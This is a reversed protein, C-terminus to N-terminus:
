YNTNESIMAGAILNYKSREDANFHNPLDDCNNRHEERNYVQISDRQHESEAGSYEQFDPPPTTGRRHFDELFNLLSPTPSPARSQEPSHRPSHPPSHSERDQIEYILIIEDIIIIALDKMLVEINSNIDGFREKYKKLANEFGYMYILYEVNQPNNNLYDCIIAIKNNEAITYDSNYNTMKIMIDMIDRKFVSALVTNTNEDKNIFSVAFNKSSM